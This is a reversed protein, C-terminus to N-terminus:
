PRKGEEASHTRKLRKASLNVVSGALVGGCYNKVESAELQEKWDYIDIYHKMDM